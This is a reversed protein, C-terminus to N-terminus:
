VLQMLEPWLQPSFTKFCVMKSFFLNLGLFTLCHAWQSSLYFLLSMAKGASTWITLAITKGTTMYVHSLQVMFFASHQLISEKSILWLFFIGYSRLFIFSLCLESICLVTPSQWLCSHTTSLLHLLWLTCVQCYVVKHYEKELKSDTQQEMELELQQQRVQMCIEWSVFSTTQYEWRKLFKGCNITMWVILPELTTLSVSTYTKEPIRKSERHALSHQCNTIQNRQAPLNKVMQAVLIPSFILILILIRWYFTM